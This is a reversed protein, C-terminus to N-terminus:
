PEFAGGISSDAIVYENTLSDGLDEKQRLEHYAAASACAIVGLSLLVVRRLFRGLAVFDGREGDRARALVRTDFGFPMEDPPAGQAAAAARLLRDLASDKM